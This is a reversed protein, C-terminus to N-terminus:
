LGLARLFRLNAEQDAIAREMTDRSEPIFDQEVVVWGAYDLARLRTVMEEIGADGEGLRCFVEASYYADLAAGTDGLRRLAEVRADKLHVHNIRAGWAALAAGPELGGILLHGPDFCIGVECVELLREVEWGAEVFTGAHPHLTPEYGRERCQAVVRDLGDAFLRFGGDDLGLAPDNAAAGVRRRREPSGADALTPKPALAQPELSDLIELLELLEPWHRELGAPDSFPLQLYAGALQLGSAHLRTGLTRADGLYGPPGLDIGTYGASSVAALLHDADPVFPNSGVTVEFAGYSVPANALVLQGSARAEVAAAPLADSM